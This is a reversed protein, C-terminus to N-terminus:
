FINKFPKLIGTCLEPEEAERNGKVQKSIERRALVVQEKTAGISSLVGLDSVM